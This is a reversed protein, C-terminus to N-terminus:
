FHNLNSTIQQILEQLQGERQAFLYAAKIKRQALM